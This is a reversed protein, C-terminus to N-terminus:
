NSKKKKRGRFFSYGLYAGLLILVFPLYSRKDEKGNNPVTFFREWRPKKEAGARSFLGEFSAWVLVPTGLIHDEPVFGWYRSDLSNSRNDGMMWFYNQKFTYASTPIGNIYFQNDKKELTNGEDRTIIDFYTNINEMTLTVTEGKKPVQVPALTYTSNLSNAPFPKQIEIGRSSSIFSRKPDQAALTRIDSVIKKSKLVSPQERLQIAIDEPITFIYEDQKYKSYDLRPYLAYEDKLFREDFPTNTKFANNFQVKADAPHIIKEQNIFVEGDKVELEDGPLAVCRKVYPDKRDIAHHISDAPFNFVVIDNREVEGWGPLRMYPLRIGDIYSKVSGNGISTGSNKNSRKLTGPVFPLGVPTFPLRIGYKTYDVFLMDGVRLTREMSGTPIIFPRLFFTHIITAFVVAYLLASILTEKREEPGTYKPKEVYNLYYLYFGLSLISLVDTSPSRKGFNRATDVWLIAYIIPAIIPIFLLILWWLPRKIIKLLVFANYVPIAAEWGKRGALQYLRWTGLFHIIQVALFLLLWSNLSYIM